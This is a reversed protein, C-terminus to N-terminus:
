ATKSPARKRGPRRFPLPTKAWVEKQTPTHKMETAAAALIGLVLEDTYADSLIKKANKWLALAQKTELRKKKEQLATIQHDIDELSPTPKQTM